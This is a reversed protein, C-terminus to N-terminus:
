RHLLRRLLRKGKVSFRWLHYLLSRYIYDQTPMHRVPFGGFGKKFHYVGWMEEGPRPQEPITRFDFFTCGQSRAWLISQYQLIHSKPLNPKKSTTGAFMDWCCDGFRILLKAAVPEGEHEAIFLAGRKQQVFKRLIERHYAKSHIFFHDRRSTEELLRYYVEFDELTEAERVKVGMDEAIRINQRWAKRFRTRLFKPDPRVDLMWSSRGHVSIPNALFHHSRYAALWEDFQLDGEVINPELRLVVAHEKRAIKHAEEILAALAPSDPGEVIPGRCGYLWKLRLQALPGPLPVASVSLSMAGVMRGNRMAALRYVRTGLFEYLEGWEYSQLLHGHPHSAVFSDWQNREIGTEVTVQVEEEGVAPTIIQDVIEEGEYFPL